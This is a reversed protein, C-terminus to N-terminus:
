TILRRTLWARVKKSRSCYIGFAILVAVSLAIILFVEAVTLFGGLFFMLGGVGSLAFADIFLHLMKDPWGRNKGISWWMFILACLSLTLVLPLAIQWYWGRNASLLAYFVYIYAASAITDFLWMRYPHLRKSLFPFVFLIWTLLASASVYVSWLEKPSFLLNVLGCVLCPVLLIVTILTAIFRKKVGEPIVPVPSFPLAAETAEVPPKDPHYVPTGCLACQKASADLEVGCNVCYSM